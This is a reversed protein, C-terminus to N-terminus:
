LLQISDIIRFILMSLLIILLFKLFYKKSKPDTLLRGTFVEYILLIIAISTLIIDLIIM